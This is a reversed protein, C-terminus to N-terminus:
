PIGYNSLNLKLTFNNSRVSVSNVGVPKFINHTYELHVYNNNSNNNYKNNDGGRCYPLIILTTYM